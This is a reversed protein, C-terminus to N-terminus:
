AYVVATVYKDILQHYIVTGEQACVCVCVCECM